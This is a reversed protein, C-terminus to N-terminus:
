RCATSRRRSTERAAPLVTRQTVGNLVYGQLWRFVSSGVYLLSSSGLVMALAQFDIGQGPM